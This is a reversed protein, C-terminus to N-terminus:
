ATHPTSHNEKSFDTIILHLRVVFPNSTSYRTLYSLVSMGHTHQFIIKVRPSSIRKTKKGIKLSSGM